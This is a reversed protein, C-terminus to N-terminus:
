AFQSGPGTKKMWSEIADDSWNVYKNTQSAANILRTEAAKTGGSLGPTKPFLTGSKINKAAGLEKYFHSMTGTTLGLVGGLTGGHVVGHWVGEKVDEGNLAAGVGGKAGEYVAFQSGSGVVKDFIDSALTKDLGKKELLKVARNKMAKDAISKQFAKQGLTKRAATKIGIGALGGGGFMTLADLPMFLGMIGAAVQEWIELDYEEIEFPLQGDENLDAMGQFSNAYASKMFDASNENVGWRPLSGFFGPSVDTLPKAEVPTFPEIEDISGSYRKMGLKYLNEDAINKYYPKQFSPDENKLYNLFEDRTYKYTKNAM